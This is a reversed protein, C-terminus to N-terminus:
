VLGIFKIILKKEIIFFKMLKTFIKQIMNKFNQIM